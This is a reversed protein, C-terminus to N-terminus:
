HRLKQFVTDLYHFLERVNGTWEREMLPGPDLIFSSPIKRDKRHKSVLLPIDEMHSSLPPIRIATSSIRQYFDKRLKGEELLQELSKQSVTILRFSSVTFTDKGLTRFAGNELTDLLKAQNEPKLNEVEDLILTSEHATALLGARTTGASTYAGKAHGFLDSDSLASNLSATNLYVHDKGSLSSIRHITKASLTKGTGTDGTIHVPLSSRSANIIARRLRCMELSQGIIRNELLKYQSLGERVLNLRARLMFATIEPSIFSVNELDALEFVNCGSIVFLPVEPPLISHTRRILSIDDSSLVVVDEFGFSHELPSDPCIHCKDQGNCAERLTDTVSNERGFVYTNM